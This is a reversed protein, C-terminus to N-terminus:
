RPVSDFSIAYLIHAGTNNEQPQIELTVAETYNLKKTEGAALTFNDPTRVSSKVNVQIGATQAEIVGEIAEDELPSIEYYDVKDCLFKGTTADGYAGTHEEDQYHSTTVSENDSEVVLLGTIEDVKQISTLRFQTTGSKDETDMAILTLKGNVVEVKTTIEESIWRTKAKQITAFERGGILEIDEGNFFYLSDQYKDTEGTYISYTIQYTGNGVNWTAFSGETGYESLLKSDGILERGITRYSVDGGGTSIRTENESLDVDGLYVDPTLNVSTNLQPLSQSVASLNPVILGSVLETSLNLSYRKKLEFM